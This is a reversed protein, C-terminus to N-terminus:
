RQIYNITIELTKEDSKYTFRSDNFSPPGFSKPNNSSGLGERPIGLFNTDIKNNGNEDHVVSIAYDGPKLSSINIVCRNQRIEGSLTKLAKEPKAPFGDKSNYIYINCKGNNNRFGTINVKIDGNQAALTLGSLLIAASIFIKM